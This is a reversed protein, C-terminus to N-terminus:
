GDNRVGQWSDDKRARLSVRCSSGDRGLNAASVARMNRRAGDRGVNCATGYVSGKAAKKVKRPIDSKELPRLKRAATAHAMPLANRACPMMM